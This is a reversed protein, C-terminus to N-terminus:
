IYYVQILLSNRSSFKVFDAFYGMLVGKKSFFSDIPDPMVYTLGDFYFYIFIYIIFLYLFSPYGSLALASEDVVVLAVEADALPAKAHDIVEVDVVLDVGPEIEQDQM